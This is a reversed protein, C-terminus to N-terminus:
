RILSGHNAVYSLVSPKKWIWTSQPCLYFRCTYEDHGSNTWSRATQSRCENNLVHTILPKLRYRMFFEFISEIWGHRTNLHSLAWLMLDNECLRCDSCSPWTEAVCIYFKLGVARIIDTRHVRKNAKYKDLTNESIFYM